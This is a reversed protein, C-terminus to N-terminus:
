ALGKMREIVSDVQRAAEARAAKNVRCTEPDAPLVNAVTVDIALKLQEDGTINLAPLVACLDRLNTFLSDRYIADPQNLRESMRELAERLRTVADTQAIEVAAKVDREIAQQIANVSASDLNCRFDGASPLPAFSVKSSYLQRLRPSSPYDMENYLGNLAQRAEQVLRPYVSCFADVASDFQGALQAMEATFPMYAATPLIRQGDDQWPLTYKYYCTRMQGSITVIAKHSDSDVPLLLKNFRGANSSATHKALVEDTAKKDYKSAQWQSIRLNALM